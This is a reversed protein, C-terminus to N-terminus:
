SKTRSDCRSMLNPPGADPRAKALCMTDFRKMTKKDSIGAKCLDVATKHVVALMETRYKMRM